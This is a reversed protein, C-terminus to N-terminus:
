FFIVIYLFTSIPIFNALCSMVKNTVFYLIRNVLLFEFLFITLSFQHFHFNANCFGYLECLFRDILYVSSNSSYLFPLLICIRYELSPTCRPNRKKQNVRIWSPIWTTIRAEDIIYLIFGIMIGDIWNRLCFLVSM